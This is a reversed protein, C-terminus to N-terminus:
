VVRVPIAEEDLVTGDFETEVSSAVDVPVAESELDVEEVPVFDELEGAEPDPDDVEGAAEGDGVLLAPAMRGMSRRPWMRMLAAVAQKAM